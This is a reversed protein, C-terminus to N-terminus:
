SLLRFKGMLFTTIEGPSREGIKFGDVDKVPLIEFTTNTLFCEEASILEDKSFKRELFPINSERAIQIVIERTVGDLVNAGAPPTLMAGSSVIFINSVTGEAIYGDDTLMIGEVSGRRKTEIKAFFNPLYYNCIKVPHKIYDPSGKKVSTVTIKVGERYWDEPYPKFEKAYVVVTPTKCLDPDLGPEGEGRSITIRIYADKLGNKRVTDEIAKKIELKGLPINLYVAEASRFLREIHKDVMFVNGRYARMTEFVGSGYLFGHDLVSVKAEGRSLFKGNIYILNSM